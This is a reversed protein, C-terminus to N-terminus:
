AAAKSNRLNWSPLDSLWKDIAESTILTRRGVKKAELRGAKIEKFILGRGIGAVSAAKTISFAKQDM